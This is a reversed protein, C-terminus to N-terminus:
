RNEIRYLHGKSRLILSKGAVAPSAIFGDDLKNDAVM